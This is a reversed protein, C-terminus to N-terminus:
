KGVISETPHDEHLLFGSFMSFHNGDVSKDIENNQVAVDDGKNLHVIVMASDNGWASEVGRIYLNAVAAGNKVMSVRFEHQSYGMITTHFVYVGPVPAVFSGFHPNYATGVNTIVNDFTIMQHVGTHELHNTLTAHFAV